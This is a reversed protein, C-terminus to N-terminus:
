EDKTNKLQYMIKTFNEYVYVEYFIHPIKEYAAIIVNPTISCRDNLKHITFSHNRFCIIDENLFFLIQEKKNKTPDNMKLNFNMKINKKSLQM